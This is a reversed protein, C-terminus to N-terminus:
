PQLYKVNHITSINSWPEVLSTRPGKRTPGACWFDPGVGPGILGPRTSGRALRAQGQRHVTYDNLAIATKLGAGREPPPHVLDSLRLSLTLGGTDVRKGPKTKLSKFVRAGMCHRPLRRSPTTVYAFDEAYANSSVQAQLWLFGNLHAPDCGSRLLHQICMQCNIDWFTLIVKYSVDANCLCIKMRIKMVYM